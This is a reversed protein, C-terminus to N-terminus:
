SHVVIVEGCRRLQSSRDMPRQEIIVEVPTPQNRFDAVYADSGLTQLFARVDADKESKILDTARTCEIAHQPEYPGVPEEDEELEGGVDSELRAWSQAFEACRSVFEQLSRAVLVLDWSDHGIWWLKCITDLPELYLGDGNGYDMVRFFPGLDLLQSLGGADPDLNMDFRLGDIRTTVQLLQQLEAPCSGMRLEIELAQEQTAPPGITYTAPGAYEFRVSRLQGVIDVFPNDSM